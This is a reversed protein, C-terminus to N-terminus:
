MPPSLNFIMNLCAAVRKLEGAKEFLMTAPCLRSAEVFTQRTRMTDKLSQVSESIGLGDLLGELFNNWGLLSLELGQHTRTRRAFTCPNFRNSTSFEVHDLM